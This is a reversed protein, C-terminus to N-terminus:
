NLRYEIRMEHCFPMAAGDMVLAHYRWTQIADRLARPLAGNGGGAFTVADVAGRESVCVELVVIQQMGARRLPEPMRPFEEYTRLAKALEPAIHLPHVPTVLPVHLSGPLTSERDRAPRPRPAPAAVAVVTPAAHTAPAETHAQPGPGATEEGPEAEQPGHPWPEAPARELVVPPLARRARRAQQHPRPTPGPAAAPMVPSEPTAAEPADVVLVEVAGDKESPAVLGRPWAGLAVVVALHLLVSVGAGLALPPRGAKAIRKPRSRRALLPGPAPIPISLM